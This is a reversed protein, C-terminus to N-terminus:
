AACPRCHRPYVIGTRRAPSAGAPPSPIPGAVSLLIGNQYFDPAHAILAAEMDESVPKGEAWSERVLKLLQKESLKKGAKKSQSPAAQAQAISLEEIKQNCASEIRRLDRSYLREELSDAGYSLRLKLAKAAVERLIPIDAPSNAQPALRIFEYLAMYHDGTPDELCKFIRSVDEDGALRGTGLNSSGSM